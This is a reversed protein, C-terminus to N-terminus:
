GYHKRYFRQYEEQKEKIKRWWSENNIYWNITTEMAQYFDKEPKWGLKKIKDIDVSYRRDHGPRDTVYKILSKPKKLIKLIIDTITINKEENGAGINYIEGIQGKHLVLDIAACNDSVYLWDRVNQGDGYLPLPLNDLANTVFLPILKEPYQYPGFNNSSRTIL